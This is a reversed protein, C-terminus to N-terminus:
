ITEVGLRELEIELQKVNKFLIAKIGLKAAAKVNDVNDDVFFAEEAKIGLKKLLYKYIKSDPKQMGVEQSLVVEDFNQYIGIKYQYDSHAKISNSLVAVKYGNNKLRNVLDIVADNRNYHKIFERSLLSEKPLKQKSKTEKLIQQWFENENIQGKGLKDIFKDWAKRLIEEKVNLTNIIDQFIYDGSSGHLVGGVDFIGVKIM